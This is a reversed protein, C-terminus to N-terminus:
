LTRGSYVKKAYYNLLSRKRGLTPLLISTLRRINWEFHTILDAYNQSASIFRIRGARLVLAFQEVLANDKVAEEQLKEVRGVSEVRLVSREVTLERNPTYTM